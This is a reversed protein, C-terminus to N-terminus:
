RFNGAQRSLLVKRLLLYNNNEYTTIEGSILFVASQTGGRSLSIASELLRSPLLRIPKDAAERGRNEFVLSWWKEGPVVRGARDVLMAHEPLLVATLSRPQESPQSPATSSAPPEPAITQTLQPLVVSRRTPRSLLRKLIEEATPEQGPPVDQPQTEPEAVTSAAEQGRGSSAASIVEEISEILIYNAGLFETIRGTILFGAPASPQAMVAQLMALQQNPLVRLPPSDPLNAKRAVRAVFWDGQKEIQAERSAVVYGEPLLPIEPAVRKRTGQSRSSADEGTEGPTSPLLIVSRRADDLLEGPVKEVRSYAPQTKARNGSLAPPTVTPRQATATASVVLFLGVAALAGAVRMSRREGGSAM